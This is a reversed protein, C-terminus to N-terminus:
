TGGVLGARHVLDDFLIFDRMKFLAFSKDPSEVLKQKFEDYIVDAARSLFERYDIGTRRFIAELVKLFMKNGVIGRLRWLRIEKLEYDKRLSQFLEALEKLHSGSIYYHEVVEKPKEGPQDSLTFYLIQLGLGTQYVGEVIEPVDIEKQGTREIYRHRTTLRKLRGILTRNAARTAREIRTNLLRIEKELNRKTEDVIATKAKGIIKVARKLQRWDPTQPIVYYYVRIRSTGRKLSYAWFKLSSEFVNYGNICDLYCDGCVRFQTQNDKRVFGLSFGEQDLTMFGYNFADRLEKEEGCAHCIGTQAQKPSSYEQERRVMLERVSAHQGAYEMSGEPEQSFQFVLARPLDSKPLELSGVREHVHSALSEHNDELWALLQQLVPSESDQLTLMIKKSISRALKRADTTGLRLCPSLNMKNGSLFGLGYDYLKSDQYEELHLKATPDLDWIDVEAVMIHKTNLSGYRDVLIEYDSKGERMVEGIAKM